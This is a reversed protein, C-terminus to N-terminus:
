QNWHHNWPRGWHGAAELLLLLQLPEHDEAKASLLAQLHHNRPERHPGQRLCTGLPMVQILTRHQAVAYPGFTGIQMGLLV